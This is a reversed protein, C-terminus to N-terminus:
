SRRGSLAVGEMLTQWVVSPAQRSGLDGEAVAAWSAWILDALVRTQWAAPVDIRLVGERRCAEIQRQVTDLIRGARKRLAGDRELEQPFHLLLRMQPGLPVLGEVLSRLDARADKRNADRSDEVARALVDVAESLAAQVLADRTPFRRHITARSLGAARALEGMSAAADAALASALTALLLEDDEDRM